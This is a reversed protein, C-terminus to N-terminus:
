MYPLHIIHQVRWEEVPADSDAIWIEMGEFGGIWEDRYKLEVGDPGNRVKGAQRLEEVMREREEAESNDIYYLSMHPFMVTNPTVGLSTHIAEHLASLAPSPQISVLVSRFYNDSTKLTEFKVPIVPQHRPISAIVADLPTSRAVTALTIHPQFDPYSLPHGSPHDHMISELKEM